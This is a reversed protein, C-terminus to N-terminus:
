QITSIPHINKYNFEKNNGIFSKLAANNMSLVPEFITFKSTAQLYRAWQIIPDQNITFLPINNLKAKVINDNSNTLMNEFALYLIEPKITKGAYEIYFLTSANDGFLYPYNRFLQKVFTLGKYGVNLMEVFPSEELQKDVYNSTFNRDYNFNITMNNYKLLFLIVNIFIMINVIDHDFM